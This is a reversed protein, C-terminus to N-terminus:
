PLVVFHGDGMRSLRVTQGGSALTIALPGHVWDMDFVLDSAPEISVIVPNRSLWDRARLPRNPDLAPAPAARARAAQHAPLSLRRPLHTFTYGTAHHRWVINRASARAENQAIMFLQALRQADQRLAKAPSDGLMSVSALATAIGIILLVVMLELLTFGRQRDAHGPALTQM